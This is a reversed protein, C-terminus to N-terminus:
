RSSCVRVKEEDEGDREGEEEGVCSGALEEVRVGGGEGVGKGPGGRSRGRRVVAAGAKTGVEDLEEVAEWERGHGALRRRRRATSQRWGGRGGGAEAWARGGRRRRAGAVERVVTEVMEERGHMGVDERQGRDGGARM